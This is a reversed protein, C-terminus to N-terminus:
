RERSSLLLDDKLIIRVTGTQADSSVQREVFTEIFTTRFVEIKHDLIYGSVSVRHCWWCFKWHVFVGAAAVSHWAWCHPFIEVNIIVVWAHCVVFKSRLFILLLYLFCYKYYSYYSLVDSVSVCDLVSFKGSATVNASLLWGQLLGKCSSLFHCSIVRSGFLYCKSNYHLDMTEWWSLPVISLHRNWEVAFRAEHLWNRPECEPRAIALTNSSICAVQSLRASENSYCMRCPATEANSYIHRFFVQWKSKFFLTFQNVAKQVNWRALIIPSTFVHQVFTRLFM